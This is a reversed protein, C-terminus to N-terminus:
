AQKMEEVRIWQTTLMQGTENLQLHLIGSNHPANKITQEILRYVSLMVKKINNESRLIGKSIFGIVEQACSLEVDFKAKLTYAYESFSHEVLSGAAEISLPIFPIIHLDELITDTFGAKLDPLIEWILDEGSLEQQNTSVDEEKNLVLKFLDMEENSQSSVKNNINKLQESGITTTLVIICNSTKLLKDQYSVEGFKILQQLEKEHWKDADDILLIAYPTKLLIDHLMIERKDLTKFKSYALGLASSEAFRFIMNTQHYIATAIQATLVKKGSHKSGVFLFKKHHHQNLVKSILDLAVDQGFFNEKLYNIQMSADSQFHEIGIDIWTALVKHITIMTLVPTIQSNDNCECRAAASDLLLLTRELAQQESLYLRALAFSNEIVEDSILVEHFTELHTKEQKLISIAEEDTEPMIRISTFINELFTSTHNNKNIVIARCNAVNLLALLPGPKDIFNIDDVIFLINNNNERLIKAIANIDVNTASLYYCQMERISKPLSDQKLHALFAELFYRLACPSLDIQLYIHHQYKRSLIDTMLTFHQHNKFPYDLDSGPLKSSLEM